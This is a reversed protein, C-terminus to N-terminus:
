CSAARRRCHAGTTGTTASESRGNSPTPPPKRSAQLPAGNSAVAERAALVAAKSDSAASCAHSTSCPSARSGTRIRSSPAAAHTSRDELASFIFFDRNAPELESPPAPSSSRLAAQGSRLRAERALQAITPPARLASGGKGGGGPAASNQSRTVRLTALASVARRSRQPQVRRWPRCSPAHAESAASPRATAAPPLARLSSSEHCRRSAGSSSISSVAAAAAACPSAGRRAKLASM